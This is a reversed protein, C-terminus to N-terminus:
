YAPIVNVHDHGIAVTVAAAGHGLYQLEVRTAEILREARTGGTLVTYNGSRSSVETRNVNM